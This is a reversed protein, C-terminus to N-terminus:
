KKLYTESQALICDQKEYIYNVIKNLIFKNIKSKVYNLEFIIDPWYDLLWLALKSRKFFNIYISLLSVTVPSTAFTLIYDYKKGSLKFHSFFM